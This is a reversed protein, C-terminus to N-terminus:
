ETAASKFSSPSFLAALFNVPRPKTDVALSKLDTVGAAAMLKPLRAKDSAVLTEAPNAAIWDAFTVREIKVPIVGANTMQLKKAAAVSLDVIRGKVYPGRNNVRVVVSKQDRQSTVRIYSGLPLTKHAASMTDQDYREGSATPGGNFGSGYFSAKGDQLFPAAPTTTTAPPSTKKSQALALGPIALTALTALAARNLSTM